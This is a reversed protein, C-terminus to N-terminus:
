NKFCRITFGNARFEGNNPNITGHLFYMYHATISNYPSSAWYFGSSGQTYFTGNNRHRYGSKPLKLENRMRTWDLWWQWATVIGQWEITRPVHYWTPCPWQRQEDTWSWNNDWWLNDDQNVLWNYSNKVFLYIDNNVDYSANAIKSSQTITDGYLFWKNRWWQFYEWWSLTWDASAIMAWVNCSSIIYWTWEWSCVAIDYECTLWTDDSSNTSEYIVDWTDAWSCATIIDWDSIIEWWWINSSTYETRNLIVIDVFDVIEWTSTRSLIDAYATDSALQSWSYAIQISEVLAVKEEDTSDETISWTYVSLSINLSWTSVWPINFWWSIVQSQLFISNGFFDIDWWINGNIISPTPVYFSSTKIYIWNYNWDIKPYNQTTANTTSIIGKKALAVFPSKFKDMWILDSEYLGLVEYETQSYITSYIYESETIPDIPKENLNRSLNTSVQDWVTWQYRLVEWSYSVTFNDDPKPYKWTNLSFLELSKKINSIDSLRKSDRAQSSYWQLSIFAITWLIALITIVVILEVLTFWYRKFILKNIM